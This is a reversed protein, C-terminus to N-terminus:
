HNKPTTDKSAELSSTGDSKGTGSSLENSSSTVNNESTLPEELSLTKESSSESFFSSISETGCGTLFCGTLLLYVIKKKTKM